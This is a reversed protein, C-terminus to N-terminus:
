IAWTLRSVGEITRLADDFDAGYQRLFEYVSSFAWRGVEGTSGYWELEGMYLPYFLNAFIVMNNEIACFSEAVQKRQEEPLQSYAKGKLSRLLELGEMLKKVFTNDPLILTKFKYSHPMRPRSYHTLELEVGTVRVKNIWKDYAFEVRLEIHPGGIDNIDIKYINFRSFNKYDIKDARKIDTYYKFFKPIYSYRYEPILVTTLITSVPFITGTGGVRKYQSVFDNLDWNAFNKLFRYFHVVKDPEIEVVKGTKILTGM